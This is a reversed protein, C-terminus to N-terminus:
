EMLAIVKREGNHVELVYNVDTGDSELTLLEKTQTVFVVESDDSFDVMKELLEKKKM